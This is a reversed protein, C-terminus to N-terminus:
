YHHHYFIINKKLNLNQIPGSTQANEKNVFGKKGERTKRPFSTLCEAHFEMDNKRKLIIFHLM